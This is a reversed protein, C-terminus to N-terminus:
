DKLPKAGLDGSFWSLPECHGWVGLLMKNKLEHLDSNIWEQIIGQNMRKKSTIWYSLAEIKEKTIATEFTKCVSQDLGIKPM